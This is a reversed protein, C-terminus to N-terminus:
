QQEILRYPTDADLGHIFPTIRLSQISMPQSVRSGKDQQVHDSTDLTKRAHRIREKGMQKGICIASAHEKKM